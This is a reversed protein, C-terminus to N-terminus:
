HMSLMSEVANVVVLRWWQSAWRGPAVDIGGTMPMGAGALILRLVKWWSWILLDLGGVVVLALLVWIQMHSGVDGGPGDLFSCSSTSYILLKGYSKIRFLWYYLM